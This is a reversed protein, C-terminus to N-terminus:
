HLESSRQNSKSNQLFSQLTGRSVYSKSKIIQFVIYNNVRLLQSEPLPLCRERELKEVAVLWCGTM